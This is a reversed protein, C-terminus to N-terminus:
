SEQDAQLDPLENKLPLSEISHEYAMKVTHLAFSIIECHESPVAIASIQALSDGHELIFIVSNAARLMKEMWYKDHGSEVKLIADQFYSKYAYLKAILMQRTEPTILSENEKLYNYEDFSDPGLRVQRHLLQPMVNYLTAYFNFVQLEFSKAGTQFMNIADNIM